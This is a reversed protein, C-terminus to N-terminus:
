PISVTTGSPQRKRARGVETVEYCIKCIMLRGYEILQSDRLLKGAEWWQSWLLNLM